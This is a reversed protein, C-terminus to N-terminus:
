TTEQTTSHTDSTKGLHGDMQFSFIQDACCIEPPKSLCTNVVTEMRDKQLTLDESSREPLPLQWTFYRQGTKFKPQKTCTITLDPLTALSPLLRGACVRLSM